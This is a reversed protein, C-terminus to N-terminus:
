VASTEVVNEIAVYLPSSHPNTANANFSCTCLVGIVLKIDM